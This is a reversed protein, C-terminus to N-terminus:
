PTVALAPLVRDALDRDGTVAIERVGPEQRGGALVTFTETSMALGVTPEDPLDDTLGVRGEPRMAYALSMDADTLTLLVSQDSGLGVRKGLVFPLAGLFSRVVHASAAGEFGGPRGVARRVDQEHMWVDVVRNSLLTNWDWDGLGGDARASGDTPPHARLHEARATVAAQLEELVELAARGRRAHVGQEIWANVPGRVHPSDPLDVEDHATGTMVAELHATHGFVDAVTWGPLDTPVSWDDESLARGLALFSACAEAWADIAAQLRQEDNM